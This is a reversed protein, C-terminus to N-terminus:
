QRKGIMTFEINQINAPYENYAEGFPSDPLQQIREFAANIENQLFNRFFRFPAYPQFQNYIIANESRPFGNADEYQRTLIHLENLMTFLEMGYRQVAYTIKLQVKGRFVRNEGIYSAFMRYVVNAVCKAFKDGTVSWGPYVPFLNAASQNLILYPGSPLNDQMPYYARFFFRTPRNLETGGELQQVEAHVTAQPPLLWLCDINVDDVVEEIQEQPLRYSNQVSGQLVTNAPGGGGRWRQANSGHARNIPHDSGLVIARHLAQM